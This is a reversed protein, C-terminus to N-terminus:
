STHLAVNDIYASCSQSPRIILGPLLSTLLYDVINGKEHGLKAFNLGKEIVHNVWNCPKGEFNPLGQTFNQIRFFILEEHEKVGYSIYFIKSITYSSM